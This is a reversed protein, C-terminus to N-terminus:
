YLGDNRRVEQGKPGFVKGTDFVCNGRVFTKEVVGFLPMGLYPTVKHRHFIQSETLIFEKEPDWITFDADAGPEIRGRKSPAGLFDSPAESMWYSLEPISLNRKKMETWILSLGFQLGAIGGWALSFDGSDMQKLHPSCPSHDSVIFDVTGELLGLWLHERNENNRIPPACKFQTAGQAIDESKLVLYHPCTEASIKIGQTQANKLITLAKASSLHVVHIQTDFEKALRILLEIASVEWSDPRSLLYSEYNQSSLQSSPAFGQLEAHVLLPVQHKALIPLSKRIIEESSMPFEIVGSEIMFCKFGLIGNQILPELDKENGPIVGGWFGYDVFATKQASERKINLASVTTTPPISNLPMDVLTTIGGAAAAQTATSIGEWETRGPENMHVHTDVLGPMVVKNGFDLISIGSIQDQYNYTKFFKGDRIEILAPKLVGLRKGPEPLLAKQSKIAFHNM